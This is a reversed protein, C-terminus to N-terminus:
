KYESFEEMMMVKQTKGTIKLWIMIQPTINKLSSMLIVVINVTM